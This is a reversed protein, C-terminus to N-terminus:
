MSIALFALDNSIRTPVKDLNCSTVSASDNEKGRSTTLPLWLEPLLEVKSCITPWGNRGLPCPITVLYFPQFRKHFLDYCLGKQRQRTGTKRGQWWLFALQKINTKKEWVGELLEVGGFQALNQPSHPTRSLSFPDSQSSKQNQGFGQQFWPFFLFHSPLRFVFFGQFNPIQIILPFVYAILFNM